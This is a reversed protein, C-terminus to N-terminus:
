STTTRPTSTSAMEWRRLRRSCPAPWQTPGSDWQTPTSPRITTSASISTTPRCSSRSTTWTDPQEEVEGDNNYDGILKDRFDAFGLTTDVPDEEDFDDRTPFGDSIMLIFNKQCSYQVPSEPVQPAGGANYLGGEQANSTNYSYKPFRTVGDKGFPREADTRSMFYTYAQFLAEALPTHSKADLSQISSVFDAAQTSTYEEVPVRVYGGNPDGNRHM